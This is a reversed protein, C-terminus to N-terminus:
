QQKFGAHLPTIASLSDWVYARVKLDTLDTTLPATLTVTAGPAIKAKENDDIVVQKLVGGTTFAGAVLVATKDSSTNNTVVATVTQTEENYTLSTVELAAYKIVINDFKSIVSSLDFSLSEISGTFDATKKLENNIFTKVTDNDLDYEMKISVNEGATVTKVATLNAIETTSTKNTGADPVWINSMNMMFEYNGDDKTTSNSRVATYYSNSESTGQVTVDFSYTLVGETLTSIPTYYLLETRSCGNWGELTIYEAGNHLSIFGVSQGVRGRNKVITGKGNELVETVGTSQHATWDATSIWETSFDNEYVLNPDVALADVNDYTIKVNDVETVQGSLYIGISKITDEFNKAEGVITNNLYTAVKKNDMDFEQKLTYTEGVTLETTPRNTTNSWTEGAGGACYLTKDYVLIPVYNKATDTGTVENNYRTLTRQSNGTLGSKQFKFDFSYTLKGSKIEKRPVFTLFEFSDASEDLKLSTTHTKNTVDYNTMPGRGARDSQKIIKGIGRPLNEVIGGAPINNSGDTKEPDYPVYLGDDFNEEYIVTDAAYAVTAPMVVLVSALMTVALMMSLVKKFM